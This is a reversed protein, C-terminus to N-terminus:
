FGHSWSAAILIALVVIGAGIGLLVTLATGAGDSELSQCQVELIRSLEVNLASGTPDYGVVQKLTGTDRKEEYYRGGVRDYKRIEGNKLTIASIKKDRFSSVDEAIFSSEKTSQCGIFFVYLSCFLFAIRPQRM